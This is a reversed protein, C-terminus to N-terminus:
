LWGEVYMASRKIFGSLARSLLLYWPFNAVANGIFTLWWGPGVAWEFTFWGVPLLLLNYLVSGIVLAPVSGFTFAVAWDKKSKLAPDAKFVRFGILATVALFADSIGAIFGFMPSLGYFPQYIIAGLYCGIIGWLGFWSGFLPEIMLPIYFFAIGPVFVVFSSMIATVGVLAACIAITVVQIVGVRVRKIEATM